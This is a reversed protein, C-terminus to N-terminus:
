DRLAEVPQIGSARLAPLYTAALAVAALAATVGSAALPGVGGEFLNLASAVARYMLFAIPVGLLMGLGSLALGSRTVMGVVKGRGAGLAMRIGIERRQQLVAHAMVGYIGMAALLLAITGMVGVFLSIARPGALSEAVHADLTRLAAVPQDPDVDWVAARVDGALETPEGATRVAFAPSRQPLQAAPVYVTEGGDGALAIRDQLADGVVGVIRWTMGRFTLSGGLPDQTAFERRVFAQNVLAVRQSEARDTGDFSRGAVLPIEMTGLYSPNIAQLGARPPETGEPRDRGEVEYRTGPNSMSRPLSSMLAVGTVGPVGALAEVVDDQHRVVEDDTSYRGESIALSFTLLGEQRYGPDGDVVARFATMLYSSGSLLALAVAFEGVVFANRLRRRTRGATGGRSGENLAERLEARAAHLAPLLGFAVGALVSVLATVALVTLDLEPMMARPIMPPMAGKLWDVVFVSLGVGIAGAVLGLTVSETLLQRLIRVRGAGLATRLAVEKQREEARGLLLNAVNACAIMLGFLTVASLIFLLKRDTPGPFFERLPMVRLSWGRNNDPHEEAIRGFVGALELGVQEATAGPALRGLSIYGRAARDDRQAAFDTPRFLDVDAPIPDFGEPTVGIITYTSGDLTLTKGLAGPDAEYRRVWLDHGLVVVNGLGEAGEEPRFTRGLAPAVGLVDFFNPTAMVAGLQEPVDVGTLNMETVTYSTASAISPSAAEYDRFNAMSVGSYAEIPTGQRGERLVILGDQDSYPLPHFLFSNLISFTSANGAIGLALSLAAVASVVPTKLLMRVGYRLDQMLTAM